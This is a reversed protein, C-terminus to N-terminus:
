SSDAKTKEEPAVRGVKGRSPIACLSLAGETTTQDQLLMDLDPMAQGKPGLGRRASSASQHSARTASGLYSSARRVNHQPLSFGTLRQNSLFGPQLHPGTEKVKRWPGPRFRRWDESEHLSSGSLVVGGALDRLPPGPDPPWPGRRYLLLPETSCLMTTPRLTSPPVCCHRSQPKHKADGPEKLRWRNMLWLFLLAPPLALARPIASPSSSAGGNRESGSPPSEGKGTEPPGRVQLTQPLLQSLGRFRLVWKRVCPMANM